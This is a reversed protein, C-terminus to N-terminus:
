TLKGRQKRHRLAINVPVTSFNTSIVDVMMSARRSFRPNWRNAGSQHASAAHRRSRWLFGDVVLSPIAASIFAVNYQSSHM